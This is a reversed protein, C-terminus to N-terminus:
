FNETHFTYYKKGDKVQIDEDKVYQKVLIKQNIYDLIDM